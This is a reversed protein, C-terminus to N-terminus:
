TGLCDVCCHEDHYEPHKKVHNICYVDGCHDCKYLSDTDGCKECNLETM